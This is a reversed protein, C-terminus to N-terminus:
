PMSSLTLFCCVDLEGNEYKKIVGLDEGDEAEAEAEAM